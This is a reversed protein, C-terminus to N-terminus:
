IPDYNKISVSNGLQTAVFALGGSLFLSRLFEKQEKSLRDGNKKVECAVFKGEKSWGIIDPIGPKTLNQRFKVGRNSQRWVTLGYTRLLRLAENTIESATLENM